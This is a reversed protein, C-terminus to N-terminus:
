VAGHVIPRVTPTFPAPRVSVSAPYTATSSDPVALGLTDLVVSPQTVGHDGQEFYTIIDEVPEDDEYFDCPETVDSM